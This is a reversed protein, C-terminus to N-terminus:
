CAVNETVSRMSADITDSIDPIRGSYGSMGSAHHFSTRQILVSDPSTESRAGPEPASILFTGAEDAWCEEMARSVSCCQMIPQM